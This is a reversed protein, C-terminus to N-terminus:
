FRRRTKRTSVPMEIGRDAAGPRPLARWKWERLLEGHGEAHGISVGFHRVAIAHDFSGRYRTSTM